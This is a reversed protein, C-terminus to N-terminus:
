SDKKVNPIWLLDSVEVHLVKGEDLLRLHMLIQNFDRQRSSGKGQQEVMCGFAVTEALGADLQHEIDFVDFGV